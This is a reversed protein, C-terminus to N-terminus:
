ARHRAYNASYQQPECRPCGFTDGLDCIIGHDAHSRNDIWSDDQVPREHRGPRKM